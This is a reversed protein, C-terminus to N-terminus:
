RQKFYRFLASDRVLCVAVACSAVAAGGGTVALSLSQQIIPIRDEDPLRVAVIVAAVAVLSGVTAWLLVQASQSVVQALRSVGVHRDSAIALRRRVIFAAGLAVGVAVVLIGAVLRNFTSSPVFRSGSTQNLQVLVPRDTRDGGGSLVTRGLAAVANEDHPWIMAWCQDFAAEGDVAETAAFSLLPDRGDDPYDFVAAVRTIGRATELKQGATVGLTTAADKSLSLGGGNADGDASLLAAFGRSVAFLSIPSRPLRSSSVGQDQERIAGSAGVNALSSMADCSRGDIRGSAKMMYIAAGSAVFERADRVAAASSLGAALVIGGATAAFLLTFTVTRGAGSAIDRWAERLAEGLRM